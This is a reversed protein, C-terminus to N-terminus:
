DAFDSHFGWPELQLDTATYETMSKLPHYGVTHLQYAIGTRHFTSRDPYSYTICGYVMVVFQFRGEISKGRAKILDIAIEEGDPRLDAPPSNPFIVTLPIMSRESTPTKRCRERLRNAIEEPSDAGYENTDMVSMSPVDAFVALDTAIPLANGTNQVQPVVNV